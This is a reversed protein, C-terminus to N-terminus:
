SKKEEGDLANLLDLFRQPTAEAAVEGYALKLNRTILAKTAASSKSPSKGQDPTGPAHPKSNVQADMEDEKRAMKHGLGRLVIGIGGMGPSQRRVVGSTFILEPSASSKKLV